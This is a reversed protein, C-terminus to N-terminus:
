KKGRTKRKPSVKGKRRTQKRRGGQQSYTQFFKDHQLQSTQQQYKISFLINIVEEDMMKQEEGSLKEEVSPVLEEILPKLTAIQTGDEKFQSEIFVRAKQEETHELKLEDKFEKQVQAEEEEKISLLESLYLPEWFETFTKEVTPHFYRRLYSFIALRIDEIFVYIYDFYHYLNLPAQKTAVNKFSIFADKKVEDKLSLIENIHFNRVKNYLSQPLFPAALDTTKSSIDRISAEKEPNNEIAIQIEKNYEDYLEYYKMMLKDCKYLRERFILYKYMLYYYKETKAEEKIGASDEEEKNKKMEELLTNVDKKQSNDINFFYQAEDDTVVYDDIISFKNGNKDSIYSHKLGIFLSNLTDDTTTFQSLQTYKYQNCALIRRNRLKFFNILIYNELTYMDLSSLVIGGGSMLNTQFISKVTDEIYKLMLSQKRSVKEDIPITNNIFHLTIKLETKEQTDIKKLKNIDAEDFINRKMIETMNKRLEKITYEIFNNFITEKKLDTNKNQRIREKLQTFIKDDMKISPYEPEIIQNNIKLFTAQKSNLNSLIENENRMAFLLSDKKTNVYETYYDKLKYVCTDIQKHNEEIEEKSVANVIYNSLLQLNYIYEYLNKSKLIIDPYEKVMDKQVESLKVLEEYGSQYAKIKEDTILSLTKNTIQVKNADSLKIDNNKFYLSWHISNGIKNDKNINLYKTTFFVDIGLLLSFVLLVRDLTLLATVVEGKHFDLIDQISMKMPLPEYTVDYKVTGSKTKRETVKRKNLTYKRTKDLLCLAQCWDGARKLLFYSLSEPTIGNNEILLDVAKQAAKDIKSMEGLDEVITSVLGSLTAQIANDQTRLTEIGISSYLNQNQDESDKSYENYVSINGEDKLFFININKLDNDVNVYSLKTAPDSDNENSQVIYFNYQHTDKYSDEIYSKIFGEGITGDDTVIIKKSNGLETMSLHSADIMLIFNRVNTQLEFASPLFFDEDYAKVPVAKINYNRTYNGYTPQIDMPAPLQSLPKNQENWQKLITEIADFKVGLTSLLKKEPLYNSKEKENNTPLIKDLSNMFYEQVSPNGKLKSRIEAIRKGREAFSLSSLLSVNNLLEQMMNGGFDHWFDSKALMNYIPIISNREDKLVGIESLPKLELKTQKAVQMTNETRERKVQQM